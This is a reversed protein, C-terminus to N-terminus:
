SQFFCRDYYQGWAYLLRSAAPIDWTFTCSIHVEDAFPKNMPPDGVFAFDDIPTFKTRRPFVRIIKISEM